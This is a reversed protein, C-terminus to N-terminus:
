SKERASCTLAAAIADYEDDYTIKKRVVVLREVMRGIDDKGSKGYGTIAVKIENPAYEFISLGAQALEYLIVGRVASVTMATKQNKAFFLSEIAAREPKWAKIIKRVQLGIERLREPFSHEASTKFCESYILVESGRDGGTLALGLREYGPDIGLIRM